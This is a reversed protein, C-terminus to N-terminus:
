AFHNLHSGAVEPRTLFIPWIERWLAVSAVIAVEGAVLLM